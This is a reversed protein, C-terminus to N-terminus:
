EARGHIFSSMVFTELILCYTPFKLSQTVQIFYFLIFYFQGCQDRGDMEFKNYYPLNKTEGRLAM